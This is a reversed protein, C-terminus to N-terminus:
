TMGILTTSMTKSNMNWRPPVARTPPANPGTIIRHNKVIPIRPRMSITRWGSM